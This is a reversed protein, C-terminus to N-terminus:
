QARPMEEFDVFHPKAMVHMKGFLRGQGPYEATVYANELKVIDVNGEPMPMKNCCPCFEKQSM